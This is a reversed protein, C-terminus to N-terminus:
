VFGVFRGAFVVAVWLTMSLVLALRGAHSTRAQEEYQRELRVYAMFNLGAIAILVMKRVFMPMQAYDTARVSFMLLGTIVAVAFGLLAVRRLLRVFPDREISGLAGLLRLDMLITSTVLAGIALIHVANVVPYAYFSAKLARVLVLGEITAFFDM